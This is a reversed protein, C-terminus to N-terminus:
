SQPAKVERPLTFYFTSGEGLKSEAWIKGKHGEIIEKSIFLGLGLGSVESATIAREFREFIKDKKDEAVGRGEDSVQMLIEQENGFIKIKITKSLGYRIANTLLNVVVQEIRMRDILINMNGSTEIKPIQYGSNQFQSSLTDLVEQTLLSIDTKEKEFQLQGTQIRSVDLMDDVLRNLRTVQYDTKRALKEVYSAIDVQPRDKIRLQLQAQLKLTTLPTKLEHSAISLFDDRVKLSNELSEKAKQRETVNLSTGLWRVPKGDRYKVLGKAEIWTIGNQPHIVRYLVDYPIKNQITAQIERQVNEIDDPHIHKLVEVLPFGATIGWDDQMQQNFEIYDTEMDWNYFGMKTVNIALKLQDVAIVKSTTEIATTLVGFSKGNEGIIPSYGYTFYAEVIQGDRSIPIFQDENWTNQGSMAKSFQPYTYNTWIEKWIESAKAGMSDPHKENGLIPIYGDNYFCYAEESWFLFCPQQSNFIYNLFNILLPPWSEMPGLPHHSWDRDILIQCTQQANRSYIKM